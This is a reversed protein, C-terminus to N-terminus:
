VAATTGIVHTALNLTLCSREVVLCYAENMQLMCILKQEVELHTHIHSVDM